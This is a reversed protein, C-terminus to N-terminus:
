KNRILVEAVKGVKLNKLRGEVVTLMQKGSVALSESVHEVIKRMIQQIGITEEDPEKL